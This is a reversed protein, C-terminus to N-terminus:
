PGLAKRFFVRDFGDQRRRDFAGWGLRPYLALNEIMRANTYLRLEALGLRRAADEVFALMAKGHGRGQVAPDVAVNDIFVHDPGARWVIFGVIADGEVRASVEGAAILTAFDPDMPAPRRGIREVYREYAAHAIATLRPIDAPTAVRMATM